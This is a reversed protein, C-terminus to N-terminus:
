SIGVKKGLEKHPKPFDPEYNMYPPVPYRGGVARFAKKLGEMVDEVRNAPFTFAMEDDQTGAFIREGNGPMVMRASQTKLPAILCEACEVKGGFYGPARDGMMYTWAQALRMMQAPNGYMFVIDPEFAAREMPAMVLAEFEANEMRHIAGVEKLAKEKDAYFDTECFLGTLSDVPETAESWGFVVAAPVCVVDSRTLGVTWGHIRAMTVGQCIAVRKGMAVSPQRTKEPFESKSKLFKAAVPFTKLRLENRFYEGATKHDLGGM